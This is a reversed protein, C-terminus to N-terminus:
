KNWHLIISSVTTGLLFGGLVAVTHPASISGLIFALLLVAYSYVMFKKWNELYAHVAFSMFGFFLFLGLYEDSPPHYVHPPFLLM